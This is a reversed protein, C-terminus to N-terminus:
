TEEFQVKDINKPIAITFTSGKGQESAARINGDLIETAIKKTLYLGLGTGGAKVRLHSELREFAEFLKHMDEKAIGIGTDSVSIEVDDESAFAKLTVTGKESYKAANSLFNLLCQLMRKRDTHMTIEEPLEVKLQLEKEKLQNEISATAEDVIESLLFSEPYRDTRGAEIKSIDIVDSILNLLHNASRYVRSLNDKQEENLEGSLEELTMGTFGIIANLPTRLEHSMSAIFMSKLRDLERLKRNALETTEKAAKLEAETRKRKSIDRYIAYVGQLQGDIVISTGTASVHIRAGDKRQRITEALVIEDSAIKQTLDRGEERLEKPIILDDISHGLAEEKSFGFMRIFEANVRAVRDESDILAIAEPATQFLQELYAKQTQLAKEAAVKDSIDKMFCLTAPKDDWQFSAVKLEVWKTRGLSDIIRFPYETPPSLGKLRREHRDMVMEQDDPHVTRRIPMDVMKSSDFGFLHEAQPNVFRWRGEQAVLIAEGANEYLSRYRSESNKRVAIENSLEANASKLEATRQQVV